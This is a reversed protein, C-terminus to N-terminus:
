ELYEKLRLLETSKGVGRHGSYLQCTASNDRVIKKGLDQRINSDGRVIGCRVYAPAGPKLPEFPEFANYIKDILKPDLNM